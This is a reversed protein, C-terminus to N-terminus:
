LERCRQIPAAAPAAPPRDCEWLSNPCRSPEGGARGRPADEYHRLARVSVRAM